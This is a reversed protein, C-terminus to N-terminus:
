RRLLCRLITGNYLFGHTQVEFVDLSRQHMTVILAPVQMRPLQGRAICCDVRKKQLAKFRGRGPQSIKDIFSRLSCEDAIHEVVRSGTLTQQIEKKSPNVAPRKCLLLCACRAQCELIQSSSRKDLNKCITLCAHYGSLAHRFGARDSGTFSRRTRSTVDREVDDAGATHQGAM